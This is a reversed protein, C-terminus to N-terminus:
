EPKFAEIQKVYEEMAVAIMKKDEFIEGDEERSYIYLIYNRMSNVLDDQNLYLEKRVGGDDHNRINQQHCRIPKGM